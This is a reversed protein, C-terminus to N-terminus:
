PSCRRVRVDSREPEGRMTVTRQVCDFSEFPRRDRNRAPHSAQCPPPLTKIAYDEAADSEKIDSLLTEVFGPLTFTITYTGDPLDGFSYRGAQDTAASRAGALASSTATVSVGPVLSGGEDRLTGSLTSQAELRSLGPM